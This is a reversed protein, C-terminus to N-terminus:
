KEGTFKIWLLESYGLNRWRKIKGTATDQFLTEPRQLYYVTGPPAAFVQPAARSSNDEGRMRCSIPIARDTVFSVLNGGDRNPNPHAAFKWEWPYPSCLALNNQFKDRREFVGPTVLYAMCSSASQSDKTELLEQYNHHSITQLDHWQQGLSDCRQMLVQHGEGGLRLVVSDLELQSNLEAETKDSQSEIGIVKVGIALGWGEQLRISNEVFYGSEDKVQRTNTEISNHSRTEIIWPEIEPTGQWDSPAIAGTKLYATIVETPLYARYADEKPSRRPNWSARVLPKPQTPDSKLVGHLHHKTDWDLPVLLNGEDYCLPSPFYLTEDRCLFAGTLKIEAKQQLLSRIAGAIAHGPPPFVSGAWAREGPSFPKADRFLLIDLPTIEYWHMTKKHILFFLFYHAPSCPLLGEVESLALPVEPVSSCSVVLLWGRAFRVVLWWCSYPRLM